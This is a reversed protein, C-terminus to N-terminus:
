NCEGKLLSEYVKQFRQLDEWAPRKASADRLLYAPHYIVFAPRGYLEHPRERLVRMPSSTELLTQAAVLGLLIFIKPQIIGIQELLYPLCAQREEQEPNRNGPPRCKVINCIYVESRRIKVAKLMDNLLQGARGVFPKGQADEEAGPGEGIIMCVADPDGEGYVLSHRGQALKCNLCNQYAAQKEALLRAKNSSPTSQSQRAAPEPGSKPVPQDGTARIAPSAQRSRKIENIGSLKLLELYQTIAKKM